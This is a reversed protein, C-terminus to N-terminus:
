VSNKEPNWVTLQPFIDCQCLTICNNSFCYDSNLQSDKGYNPFSKYYSFGSSFTKVPINTSNTFTICASTDLSCFIHEYSDSSGFSDIVSIEKFESLVINRIAYFLAPHPKFYIVYDPYRSETEKLMLISLEINDGGLVLLKNNKKYTLKLDQIHRYAPVIYCILNVQNSFRVCDSHNTFVVSYNRIGNYFLKYRFDFNFYFSLYRLDINRKIAHQYAYVNASHHRSLLILAISEWQQAEVLYFFSRPDNKRFVNKWLSVFIINKFLGSLFLSSLFKRQFVLWWLDSVDTSSCFRRKVAAYFRIVDIFNYVYTFLCEVISRISIYNDVTKFKGDLENKTILKFRFLTRVDFLVTFDSPFFVFHTGMDKYACSPLVGKWYNLANDCLKPSSLEEYNAYSVVMRKIDNQKKGKFLSFTSAIANISVLFLFV